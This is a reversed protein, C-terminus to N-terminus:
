EALWAMLTHYFNDHGDEYGQLLIDTMEQEGASPPYESSNHEKQGIDKIRKMEAILAKKRVFGFISNSM